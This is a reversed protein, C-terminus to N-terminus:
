LDYDEFLMLWDLMGSNKCIRAHKKLRKQLVLTNRM